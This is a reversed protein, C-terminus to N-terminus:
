WVVYTLRQLTRWYKGLQRQAYNNATLVLPILLLVMFFGVLLFTHGTLRGPASGSFLTTASAISADAFATLAFMIGYWRRMPVLWRWGTLTIVPTVLLTLILLIEAGTGGVDAIAASLDNGNGTFLAPAIFLFPLFTPIKLLTLVLKQWTIGIPQGMKTDVASRPM